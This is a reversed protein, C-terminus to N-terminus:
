CSRFPSANQDLQHIKPLSTRPTLPNSTCTNTQWLCTNAHQRLATARESHQEAGRMQAQEIDVKWKDGCHIAPKSWATTTEQRHRSVTSPYTDRTTCSALCPYLHLRTEYWARAAHQTVMALTARAEECCKKTGKSLQFGCCARQWQNLATLVCM